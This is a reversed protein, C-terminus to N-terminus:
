RLGAMDQWPLGAGDVKMFIPGFTFTVVVLLLLLALIVWVGRGLAGARGGWGILVESAYYAFPVSLGLLYSGKLTAFWPNGWTFGVYGCLTAAVLILMATDAGGPAALARRAGRVLGVAFAASPLLALVLLARGMRLVDISNALFHRHGDFYLTAYTSGWVSHLLDPDLLQPNTFTSLPVYVYDFLSRTGPPMDFMLAHVALDQPYVYGYVLLNRAYFWGGTLAAVGAFLAAARVAESVRAHRVGAILWTLGVAGIVLVASLKTLLALGAFLGALLAIRVGRQTAEHAGRTLQQAGQMGLVLVVSTLLAALMEESVMASMYINAPLFLLLGLAVVARPWARADERLIWAAALLATAIGTAGAVLPIAQLVFPQAGVGDLARGLLASAYYFLPPHSTAWAADPAPLSWNVMLHRIYEVNPAADFGLRTKFRLANNIRVLTAVGLLVLGLERWGFRSANAPPAADTM